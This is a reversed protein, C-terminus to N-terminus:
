FSSRKSYSATRDAVSPLLHQLYPNEFEGPIVSKMRLLVDHTNKMEDWKKPRERDFLGFSLNSSTQKQSKFWGSLADIISGSKPTVIRLAVYDWILAFLEQLEIARKGTTANQILAYCELPVDNCFQNFILNVKVQITNESPSHSAIRIVEDLFGCIKEGFKLDNCLPRLCCFLKKYDFYMFSTRTIQKPPSFLTQDRLSILWTRMEKSDDSNSLKVRKVFEMVNAYIHRAFGERGEIVPKILNFIRETIQNGRNSVDGFSLIIRGSNFSYTMLSIMIINIKRTAEEESISNYESFVKGASNSRMLPVSVKESKQELRDCFETCVDFDVILQMFYYAAVSICGESVIRKTVKDFKLLSDFIEKVSRTYGHLTIRQAIARDYEDRSLSNIKNFFNEWAMEAVTYQESTLDNGPRLANEFLATDVLEKFVAITSKTLPPDNFRGLILAAYHHFRPDAFQLRDAEVATFPDPKVESCNYFTLAVNCRGASDVLSILKTGAENLICYTLPTEDISTETVHNIDKILTYMLFEYVSELPRKQPDSKRKLFKFLGAGKVVQATGIWFRNIDPKTDEENKQKRTYDLETARVEDWRVQYIQQLTLMSIETIKKELKLKSELQSLARSVNESAGTKLMGICGLLGRYDFAPGIGVGIKQYIPLLLASDVICSLDIEDALFSAFCEMTERIATLNGSILRILFDYVFITHAGVTFTCGYFKYVDDLYSEILESNLYHLTKSFKPYDNKSSSFGNACGEDFYDKLLQVLRPLISQPFLGKAKRIATKFPGTELAFDNTKLRYRMLERLSLAREESGFGKRIMSERVHQLPVLQLANRDERDEMLIFQTPDTQTSLVNLDRVNQVKPFLFELYPRGSLSALHCALKIWHANIGGAKLTYDSSDLVTELRRQFIAQISNITGANKFNEDLLPILLADLEDIFQRDAQNDRRINDICNQIENFLSYVM